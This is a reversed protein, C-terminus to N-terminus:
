GNSLPGDLMSALLKDSLPNHNNGLPKGDIFTTLLYYINTGAKKIRAVLHQTNEFSKPLMALSRTEKNFTTFDPQDDIQQTDYPVKLALGGPFAEFVM